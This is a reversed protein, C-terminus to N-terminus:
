RCTGRERLSPDTAIAGDVRFEAVLHEGSVRAGTLTLGAPLRGAVCVRWDRLVTNALGGLRSRLDDATVAAGGLTVSAPTLVLDGADASPTLSVGVPVSAGFVSVATSMTVNPDALGLTGAPFGEVGSMLTRLQAADMRATATGGSMAFGERLRVDHVTVTVEGSFGDVELDPATVTAEGITGTALQLLLSGPIDVDVTEGAPVGLQRSLQQSVAKTVIDRAVWEGAFYAGAALVLVIGLAVLWPWARRRRPAADPDAEPFRFPDQSEGSM